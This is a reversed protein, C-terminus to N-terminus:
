GGRRNGPALVSQVFERAPNIPIAFNLGSVRRGRMGAANIGIVRGHIDLLPGGSNGPNIAADTQVLHQLDIDEPTRDIGSIVGRTVTRDLGMPNGIAIATQGVELRNSDGLVATPFGTGPVKVVALDSTEDQGLVRGTLMRGDALGVKVTRTDDVVHQNTLIIGNSQIILGSGDDDDHSISVVSPSAQRVVAVTAEDEAVAAALSVSAPAEQAFALAPMRGGSIGLGIGIGLGAAVALTAGHAFVKV